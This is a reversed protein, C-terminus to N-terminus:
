SDVRHSTPSASAAREEMVKRPRLMALRRLADGVCVRKGEDLVVDNGDLEAEAMLLEDSVLVLKKELVPVPEAELESVPLPVALALQELVSLEVLLLVLVGLELLVLVRLELLVIAGLELLVLAALELVVLEDLLLGVVIPLELLVAETLIEPVGEKLMCVSVPLWVAEGEELMM